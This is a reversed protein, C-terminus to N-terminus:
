SVFIVGVDMGAPTFEDLRARLNALRQPQYLDHFAGMEAEDDAGATIEEACDAALQCYTPTGYRQSNFRPRVRLDVQNIREDHTPKGIKNAQYAAKIPQEVLDPQCNYRRPTRSEPAVYCFRLCGRQSRVVQVTDHFITNEGLEIAHAKVRGLITSNQVTLIAHAYSFTEDSLVTCAPGEDSTNTADLISDSIHLPIPESTVQNQIVWISGVISQEITVHANVNVIQLSPETPRKPECDNLLQWGPVLTCHRITFQAPQEPKVVAPAVQAQKDTDPTVTPTNGKEYSQAELEGDNADALPGEVYVGREYLLLGDLTVQSGPALRFTWADPLDVQFNQLRLIPRCGSAARIQLSKHPKKMELPELREEYVRSTAIEIVAHALQDEKWAALADALNKFEGQNPRQENVVRYNAEAPAVARRYEGGGIDASFGYHYSVQVGDKPRQNPPFVIRGTVPDVAVYGRPPQYNWNSLDAPIICHHPIPQGPSRANKTPWHNAWIQLSKGEGYLSEAAPIREIGAAPKREVFARRRIPVPVNAEGTIVAPQPKVYLPTNNGLASFTYCNTGVEELCCAQTATVAYSHLRWVFLGVSPLNYRGTTHESNPRRLDVTHAHPDFPGGILELAEGQRLDVTGGLGPRPQNLQQTWGLLTYFEVARAPWGAVDSALQELLALAGKRRRYRITNAVERRPILFKARAQTQAANPDSPEGGAFVPTYGILDGLYPVVWDQCTEIFWNDYMQQIDDEVLNVQEAIVQLLAHLPEGQEADRLRHIVPLLQYLEDERKLM